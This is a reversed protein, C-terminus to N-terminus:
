LESKFLCIRERRARIYKRSPLHSSVEYVVTISSRHTYSSMAFKSLNAAWLPTSLPLSLLVAQLMMCILSTQYVWILTKHVNWIHKAGTDLFAAVEELLLATAHKTSLSCHFTSVRNIYSTRILSLRKLGHQYLPLIDGVLTALYLLLIQYYGLYAALCSLMSSIILGMLSGVYMSMAFNGCLEKWVSMCVEM